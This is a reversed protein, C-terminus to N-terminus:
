VIHETTRGHNECVHDVRAALNLALVLVLSRTDLLPGSDACICSNNTADSQTRIAKHGSASHHRSVNWIVREYHANGRHLVAPHALASRPQSVRGEGAAWRTSASIENFVAEAALECHRANHGCLM